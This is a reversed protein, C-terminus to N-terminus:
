KRYPRKASRHPLSSEVLIAAAAAAAISSTTTTTTTVVTTTTTTIPNFYDPMTNLHSSQSEATCYYNVIAFYLLDPSTTRSIMKSVCQVGAQILVEVVSQSCFMGTGYSTVRKLIRLPWTDMACDPWGNLAINFFGSTSFGGQNLRKAAYYIRRRILPPENICVFDWKAARFHGESTPYLGPGGPCFSTYAVYKAMGKRAVDEDSFEFLLEAHAYKQNRYRMWYYVLDFLFTGGPAVNECSRACFLIRDPIVPPPRQAKLNATMGNKASNGRSIPTGNQPTALDQM